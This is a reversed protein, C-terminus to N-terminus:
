YQGPKVKLHFTEARSYFEAKGYINDSNYVCQCTYIGAIDPTVNSIKLKSLIRNGNAPDTGYETTM